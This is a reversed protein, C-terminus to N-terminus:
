RRGHKKVRDRPKHSTTTHPKSVKKASSTKQFDLEESVHICDLGFGILGSKDLGDSSFCHM